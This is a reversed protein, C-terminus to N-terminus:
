RKMVRKASLVLESVVEKFEAINFPKELRINDVKNLYERARPTFVGGTIFIFQKALFPHNSALWDHLDMGSLDPMMMDCLILDFDHDNGLLRKAERGSGVHVTDHERLMRVMAIRIEEEDDVILIRGRGPSRAGIGAAAVTPATADVHMPLCVTLRTGRGIESKVDITGAYSEIINKSIALGLGSGVGIKKTTFFPEFLRGFNEKPIGRGTDVVEAFVHDGEAWTRVRIENEEVNGEEIAHSANILLNLFVQSLQGENAM